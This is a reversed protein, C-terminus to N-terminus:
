ITTNGNQLDQAVKGFVDNLNDLKSSPKKSQKLNDLKMGWNESNWAANQFQMAQTGFYGTSNHRQEGSLRKYEDYDAHQKAFHAIDDLSHLQSNVFSMVMSRGQAYPSEAYGWVKILTLILKDRQEQLEVNTVPMPMEEFFDSEDIISNDTYVKDIGNGIGIGTGRQLPKSPAEKIYGNFPDLNLGTFKSSYMNFRSIIGKHAKNAINLPLNKQHKIFNKVLVCSEDDSLILGRSLGKIAGSITESNSGLDFAIKRISLEFFGGIDCNDCLYLFLLKEISKLEVFWSDSWKLTDSFRYAM